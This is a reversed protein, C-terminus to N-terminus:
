IYIACFPFMPTQGSRTGPGSGTSPGLRVDEALAKVKQDLAKVKEDLANMREDLADERADLEVKQQALQEDAASDQKQCSCFMALPLLISLIFLKKM